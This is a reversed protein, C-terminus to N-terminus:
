PATFEEKLLAFGLGDKWEGNRLRDKLFHSELRM